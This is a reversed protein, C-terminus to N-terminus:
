PGDGNRIQQLNHKILGLSEVLGEVQADSLGSLAQSRLQAAQDYIMPLMERARATTYVRKLRRDKPDPRREVLNAAELKDVLTGLPAREIGLWEALESQFIGEKRSLQAIVRWQSRSLPMGAAHLRRDLLTSTLRYNDSLLFFLHHEIDAHQETM